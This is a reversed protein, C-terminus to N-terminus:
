SVIGRRPNLSNVPVAGGGEPGSAEIREASVKRLEDMSEFGVGHTALNLYPHAKGRKEGTELNYGYAPSDTLHARLKAAARNLDRSRSDEFALALLQM